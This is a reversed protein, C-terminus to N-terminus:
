GGSSEGGLESWKHTVPGPDRGVHMGHKSLNSNIQNRITSELNKGRLGTVAQVVPQPVQKELKADYIGRIIENIIMMKLTLNVEDWPMGGKLFQIAREEIDDLDFCVSTAAPIMEIPKDLYNWPLRPAIGVMLLDHDEHQLTEANPKQGVFGSITFEFMPFGKHIDKLLFNFADLNVQPQNDVLLNLTVLRRERDIGTARTVLANMSVSFLMDIAEQTKEPSGMNDPLMATVIGPDICRLTRYM